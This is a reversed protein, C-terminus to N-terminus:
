LNLFCFLRWWEILGVIQTYWCTPELSAQCLGLTWRQGLSVADSGGEGVGM